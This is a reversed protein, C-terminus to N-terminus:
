RWWNTTLKLYASQKKLVVRCRYCIACSLREEYGKPHGLLKCLIKGHLLFFKDWVKWWPFNPTLSTENAQGLSSLQLATSEGELPTSVYKSPGSKQRRRWLITLIEM